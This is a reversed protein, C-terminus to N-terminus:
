PKKRAAEVEKAFEAFFYSADHPGPFSRPSIPCQIGAAGQTAARGRHWREFQYAHSRCQRAPFGSGGRIWPESFNHGGQRNSPGECASERRSPRVEAQVDQRGLGARSNSARPLHRVPAAKRDLERVTEHTYNLAAPDGPGNSLFVGDPKMSLVEAASTSAPVVRVAFGNRRLSRLINRKIGFDYAAIRFSTPPLEEFLNGAEDGALGAPTDSRSLTWKRSLQDETDWDYQSVTTVEQVFDVGEYPVARAQAVAEEDGLEAMAICARM